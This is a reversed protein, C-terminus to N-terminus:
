WHASLESGMATLPQFGKSWFAPMGEKYTDGNGTGMVPM